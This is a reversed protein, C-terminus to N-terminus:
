SQAKSDSHARSEPSLVMGERSMYWTKGGVEQEDSGAPRPLPGLFPVVGPDIYISRGLPLHLIVRVHQDRFRDAMPYKLVDCLAITGVSDVRIDYGIREAMTRALRQGPGRATALWELRTMSDASPLIEIELHDYCISDGRAILSGGEEDANFHLMRDPNFSLTYLELRYKQPEDPLMVTHAVIGETRFESAMRMGIQLSLILGAVFLFFSILMIGRALYAPLRVLLRLGVYLLVLLPALLILTAAWNVRTPSLDPPLIWDACQILNLGNVHIVNIESGNIWFDGSWLAIALLAAATFVGTLLLVGVVRALRVLVERIGVFIGELGKRMRNRTEPDNFRREVERAEEEVTQRINNFTVPRGQMSLRDATNRVKPVSIWLIIYLLVGFGTFLVLLVFIIRLIAVDIRLYTSLGMCVGGLVVGDDDRFLRRKASSEGAVTQASAGPNTGEGATFDNPHGLARIVLEVDELEVVKRMSGLRGILLEAFRMEIDTLIEDCGETDRLHNRLEDLYGKLRVYADEDIHILQGGLNIQTAKKM